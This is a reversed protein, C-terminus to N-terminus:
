TADLRIPGKGTRPQEALNRPRLLSTACHWSKQRGQTATKDVAMTIVVPVLRSDRRSANKGRWYEYVTNRIKNLTVIEGALELVQITAFSKVANPQPDGLPKLLGTRVLVPFDHEALGLMAATEAMNLMAPLRRLNLLERTRSSILEPRGDSKRALLENIENM